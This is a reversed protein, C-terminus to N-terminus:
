GGAPCRCRSPHRASRRDPDDAVSWRLRSVCSTITTEDTLQQEAQARHGVALPHDQLDALLDVPSLQQLEGVHLVPAALDLELPALEPQPSLHQVDVGRVLLERDPDLEEAVLDFADFQDM